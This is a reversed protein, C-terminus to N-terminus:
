DELYKNVLHKAVNTVDKAGHFRRKNWALWHDDEADEPVPKLPNRAISRLPGKCEEWGAWYDRSVDKPGSHGSVHLRLTGDHPLPEERELTTSTVWEVERPDIMNEHQYGGARSRWIELHLHPGGDRWRTVTAVMEGPAVRRGVSLMMLPDVHRMVWVAGSPEQIEVVGGFVQGSDGKSPSVRIVEGEVPAKVPVGGPAFWDVASHYRNGDASPAGQADKFGFAFDRNADGRAVLYAPTWDERIPLPPYARM